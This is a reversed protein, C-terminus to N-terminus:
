NIVNVFFSKNESGLLGNANAGNINIKYEGDVDSNFFKITSTGTNGVRINPQWYITKRVDLILKDASTEYVPSYFKRAFKIGEIQAINKDSKRKIAKNSESNTGDKLTIEIVGGTAFSSYKLGAGSSKYVNLEKISQIDIDLLTRADSGRFVGDIVIIAGQQYYISNVGRLLIKGGVDIEIYGAVERILAYVDEADNGFAPSFDLTSQSAKIAHYEKENTEESIIIKRIKKAKVSVEDLLIENKSFLSGFMLTDSEDKAGMDSLHLYNTSQNFGNFTYNNISNIYEDEISTIIPKKNRPNSASLMLSNEDAIQIFEPGTFFFNGISDSFTSISSFSKTNMLAVNANFIAKGKRDHLNGRLAAFRNQDLKKTPKNLENILVFKRWGHTLLLIDLATDSKTDESFYFGPNIIRGKLDNSLLIKSLISEEDQNPNLNSLTVDLSLDAAVPKNFEDKVQINLTVSEKRNYYNKNTSLTIHLKRNKNVFALRESVPEENSNFLTFTAIGIPLSGPDITLEKLQNVTLTQAYYIVGRTHIFLSFLEDEGAQSLLGVKISKDNNEIIKISAIGVNEKGIKYKKSYGKPHDIKIYYDENNILLNFIGMGKYYTGISKIKEDNENYVSAKIDLPLGHLDSSNFAIKNIQGNILNGGEPFFQLIPPIEKCPIIISTIAEYNSRIIRAQFVLLKEETTLEPILINFSSIGEDGISIVERSLIESGQMCSLEVKTKAIRNNFVDLLELDGKLTDGIQYLSDKLSIKIIADSLDKEIVEISKTFVADLDSYASFNTYAVINYNGPQINNPLVIEGNSIGNIIVHKQLKLNKKDNDLLCVTLLHSSQAPKLNRHDFNYAKFWITDGASFLRGNTHLFLSEKKLNDSKFNLQEKLKKSFSQQACIPSSFLSLSIFLVTLINKM